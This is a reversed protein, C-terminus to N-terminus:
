KAALQRSLTRLSDIVPLLLAGKDTLMYEVSRKDQIGAKRAIFGAQELTKLRNNLTVANLAPVAKQLQVFRRPQVALQNVLALVWVDGVIRLTDMCVDFTQVPKM